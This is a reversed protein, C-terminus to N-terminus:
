PKRPLPKAPVGVVVAGPPVDRTVVANAGITAGDGIAVGPLVVAGRGIWVEKGIVIAKSSHGSDRLAEGEVRQHNADRISVFEGILTGAGITVSDFAVIHTDRNIVVRDGLTISGEGQTELHIGPYLYLGEGLAIRGTGHVTPLGLAVVSAPVTGQVRSQLVAFSWLHVAKEWPAHTLSLLHALARGLTAKLSPSQGSQRYEILGQQAGKRRNRHYTLQGWAIPLQQFHSHLAYLMLARLSDAKWRARWATRALLLGFGALGVLAPWLSGLALAAGVLGLVMAVEVAVLRLNRRADEQWFPDDTGQFRTSVEAYAHGTREARRWYQRLTNIGLDHRTMPEDLHLIRYGKARMRRCMEPEEGAILTPDYGNVAVLAERLVLADGGCFETEGPPSLWDLDLVEQYVSQYPRIERRHGWVIATKPSQIAAHAKRPFDAELITDGDLFLMYPAASARWGANRGLAASPREPRVQIVHAQLKRAMEVSNDTSASDVYIVEHLLPGWDAQHVSEICRLLRDGENRGIIVVSIDPGTSTNASISPDNM